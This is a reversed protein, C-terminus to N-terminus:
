RFCRAGKRRIANEPDDLFQEPMIIDIRGYDVGLGNSAQGDFDM